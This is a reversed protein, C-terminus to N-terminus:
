IQRKKKNPYTSNITNEQTTDVNIIKNNPYRFNIINQWQIASGHM